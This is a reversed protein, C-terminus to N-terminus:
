GVQKRWTQFVAELLQELNVTGESQVQAHWVYDRTRRESEPVGQDGLYIFDIAGASVETAFARKVIPHKELKKRHKLADAVRGLTVLEKNSARFKNVEDTIVGRDHPPHRGDMVHYDAVHHLSVTYNWLTSESGSKLFTERNPEVIDRFYDKLHKDAM